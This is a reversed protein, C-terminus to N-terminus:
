GHIGGVSSPHGPPHEQTRHRLVDNKADVTVPVPDGIHRVLAALPATLADEPDLDRTSEICRDELPPRLADCSAPAGHTTSPDPGDGDIDGTRDLAAKLARPGCLPRLAEREAALSTTM